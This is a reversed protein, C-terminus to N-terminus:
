YNFGVEQGAVGDNDPAETLMAHQITDITANDLIAINSTWLFPRVTMTHM